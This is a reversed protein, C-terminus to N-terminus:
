LSMDVLCFNEKRNQITGLGTVHAHVGVFLSPCITTNIYM